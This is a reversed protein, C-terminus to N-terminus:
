ARTCHPTVTSTWTVTRTQVPAVVTRTLTVLTTRKTITVTRSASEVVTVTSTSPNPQLLTATSIASATAFRYQTHVSDTITVAPLTVTARGARTIVTTSDTVTVTLPHIADIFAPRVDTNGTDRPLAEIPEAEPEPTSSPSQGTSRVAIRCATPRAKHIKRITLTETPRATILRMGTSIVEQVQVTAAHPRRTVTVVVVTAASDTLTTTSTNVTATAVDVQHAFSTITPQVTATRVRTTVTMGAVTKTLAHSTAVDPVDTSSSQGKQLSINGKESATSNDQGCRQLFGVTSATVTDIREVVVADTIFGKMAEELDILLDDKCRGKEDKNSKCVPSSLVHLQGKLTIPTLIRTRSRCTETAVEVYCSSSESKPFSIDVTDHIITQSSSKAKKAKSSQWPSKAFASFRDHGMGDGISSELSRNWNPHLSDAARTMRELFASTAVTGTQPISIRVSGDEARVGRADFTETACRSDELTTVKSHEVDLCVQAQTWGLDEMEDESIPGWYWTTDEMEVSSRRRPGAAPATAEAEEAASSASVPHLLPGGSTWYGTDRRWRSVTREFNAPDAGDRFMDLDFMRMGAQLPELIQSNTYNVLQAIQANTLRHTIDQLTLNRCVSRALLISSEPQVKKLAYESAYDRVQAELPTMSASNLSTPIALAVHQSNHQFVVLIYKPGPTILAEYFRSRIRLLDMEDEDNVNQVEEDVVAMTHKVMKVLKILRAGREHSGPGSPDFAPGTARVIACDQRTLVLSGIVSRHTASLKTLTSELESPLPERPITDFPDVPAAPALTSDPDAISHDDHLRSHDGDATAADSDIDTDGGENDTTSDGDFSAYDSVDEDQLVGASPPMPSGPRPLAAEPHHAKRQLDVPSILIHREDQQLSPRPTTDSQGQTTLISLAPAATLNSSPALM